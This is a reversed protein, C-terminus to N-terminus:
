DIWSSVSQEVACCNANTSNGDRYIFQRGQLPSGIRGSFLDGDSLPRNHLINWLGPIRGRYDNGFVDTIVVRDLMLAGRIPAPYVFGGGGMYSVAASSLSMRGVNVSTTSGDSLNAVYLGPVPDGLKATDPDDANEASESCELAIPYGDATAYSLFEGFGHRVIKGSDVQVFLHLYAGNSFAWWKRPTSDATASKMWYGGGPVQADQPFPDLGYSEDVGPIGFVSSFGRVRADKDGSDDVALTYGFSPTAYSGGSFFDDAMLTWGLPAAIAEFSGTAPGSTPEQAFMDYTDETVNFIPATINYAPDDSGTHAVTQGDQYGHAASEVTIIGLNDTMATPFTQNYGYVLIMDLLSKLSGAEGTLQPAGTQTSDFYYATM